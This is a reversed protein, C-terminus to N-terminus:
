QNKIGSAISGALGAAFCSSLGYMKGQNEKIFDGEFAYPLFFLQSKVM